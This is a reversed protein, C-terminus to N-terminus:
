CLGVLNTSQSLMSGNLCNGAVVLTLERATLIRLTQSRLSIRGSKSYECTVHSKSPKKM